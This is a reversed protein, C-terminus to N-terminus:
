EEDTITEVTLRQLQWGIAALAAQLQKENAKLRQLLGEEESAVHLSLHPRAALVTVDVPRGGLHFQIWLRHVPEGQNSHKTQREAQWRVPETWPGTQTPPFFLGGGTQPAGATHVASQIRDLMLWDRAMAPLKAFDGLKRITHFSLVSQTFSTEAASFNAIPPEGQAAHLPTTPEGRSPVEPAEPARSWDGASVAVSGNESRVALAALWKWWATLVTAMDPRVPPSGHVVDGTIANTGGTDQSRFWETLLQRWAWETALLRPKALLVPPLLSELSEEIRGGLEVADAALLEGATKASGEVATSSPNAPATEPRPGVRQVPQSQMTPTVRVEDM